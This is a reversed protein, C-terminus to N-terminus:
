AATDSTRYLATIQAASGNDFVQFPLEQRVIGPGSVNPTSGTYEIVPMTLQLLYTSASSPITIGTWSAIMEAQTGDMFAAYATLDTFEADMTGTIEWFGDTLPELITNGLFARTSLSWTGSIEWSAVNVATGGVTVAFQSFDFVAASSAFTATALATTTVGAKAFWTLELTLWGEDPQSLKWAVVKGGPYTFPRDIGDSSPRNTQLTASIRRLGRADPVFTHTRATDTGNVGGTLTSGAWTNGAATFTETTAVTNATTGSATKDTATLTTATYTASVSPHITTASGYYTGEGPGLNIANALNRLSEALTAGILVQFATAGVSSKFTYVTSGITVTDDATPNTDCTLVRAANTGGPWALVHSGFILKLIKAFAKNTVYHTTTGGAVRAYTKNRDHRAFRGRGLSPPGTLKKVDNALTETLFEVFRDPTVATGYFAEEGIGFQSDLGTGTGVGM